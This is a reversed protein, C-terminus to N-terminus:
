QQKMVTTIVLFIAESLQAILEFCPVKPVVNRSDIFTSMASLQVSQSILPFLKISSMHSSIIHVSVIKHHSNLVDVWLEKNIDILCRLIGLAKFFMIPPRKASFTANMTLYSNACSVELKIGLATVNEVMAATHGAPNTQQVTCSPLM